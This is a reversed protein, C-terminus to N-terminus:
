AGKLIECGFGPLVGSSDMRSKPKAPMKDGPKQKGSVSKETRALVLLREFFFDGV